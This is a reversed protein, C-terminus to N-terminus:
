LSSVKFHDIANAAADSSVGVRVNSQHSTSSYALPAVADVWFRIAQGNFTARLIHDAGDNISVSASGRLTWISATQEWLEIANVSFKAILKWYNLSDGYRAILSASGSVGRVSATLAFDARGIHIVSLGTAGTCRNGNITLNGSVTQWAAPSRDPTHASLLKGNTDTFTDWVIVSQGPASPQQKVIFRRRDHLTTMTM